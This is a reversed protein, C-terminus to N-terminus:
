PNGSLYKLAIGHDSSSLIIVRTHQQQEERVNLILALDKIILMEDM